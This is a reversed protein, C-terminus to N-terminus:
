NNAGSTKNAVEKARLLYRNSASLTYNRTPANFTQEAIIQLAEGMIQWGQASEPHLVTYHKALTAAGILDGEQFLIRAQTLVKYESGLLHAIRSAQERPHERHLNIPDGDFWGMDQAYIDRITGAVSGYYDQLYDLSAYEPPLAAFDVLEDPTMYRQIGTITRDHVWKLADRYNTLVETANEMPTTHGGVVIQPEEAIMKGLSEIWDRVSRRATGRLPYTNPWSQYFNDGAFLVQHQPLWVYLQDDTEGPAKVLEIEIGSIYLKRRDDGFTHTPNIKALAAQKKDSIGDVNLNGVPRKTPPIAIGVGIKQEPLLDFGQTNFPRAGKTIGAAQTRAIESGYNDRAWVEIGRDEQYFVSAGGTHDGHSHTYIIAKIPKDTIKEFEAKVQESASPMQGPDIIIVGDDGVIMSNATVSYGIAIHINDAVSIIRPTFMKNRLTLRQTAESPGAPSEEERTFMNKSAIRADSIVEELVIEVDSTEETQTTAESTPQDTESNCAPLLLICASFIICLRNM